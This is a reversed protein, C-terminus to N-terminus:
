KRERGKEEKCEGESQKRKERQEVRKTRETEDKGGRGKRKEEEARERGIQRTKKEEKEKTGERAKIALSHMRKGPVNNSFYHYTPLPRRSVHEGTQLLEVTESFFRRGQRKIALWKKRKFFVM